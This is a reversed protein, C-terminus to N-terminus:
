FIKVPLQMYMQLMKTKQNLTSKKMPKNKNRKQQNKKKRIILSMKLLQNPKMRPKRKKRKLNKIKEPNPKKRKKM